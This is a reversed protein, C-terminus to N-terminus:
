ESKAGNKINWTINRRKNELINLEKKKKESFFNNKSNLVAHCMKLFEDNRDMDQIDDKDMQGEENLSQLCDNMNKLAADIMRGIKSKGTCLCYYQLSKVYYFYATLYKTNSNQITFAQVFYICALAFSESSKISDSQKQITTNFIVQTNNIQKDFQIKTNDLDRKIEKVDREIGIANYINWGILITVFIGLVAVVWGYFSNNDYKLVYAARYNAIAIASISLFFSIILFFIILIEKLKIPKNM